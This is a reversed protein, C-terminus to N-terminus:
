AIQVQQQMSVNGEATIGLLFGHPKCIHPEGHEAADVLWGSSNCSLILFHLASNGLLLWRLWSYSQKRGSPTWETGAVLPETQREKLLDRYASISHTQRLRIHILAGNEFPSACVSM